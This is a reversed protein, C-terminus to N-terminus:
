VFPDAIWPSSEDTSALPTLEGDDEVKGKFPNEWHADILSSVRVNTKGDMNLAVRDFSGYHLFRLGDKGNPNGSPHLCM